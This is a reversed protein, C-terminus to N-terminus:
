ITKNPYTELVAGKDQLDTALGRHKCHKQVMGIRTICQAKWAHEGVNNEDGGVISVYIRGASVALHFQVNSYRRM